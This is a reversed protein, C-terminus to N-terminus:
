QPLRLVRAMIIEDHYCENLYLSARKRGEVQFGCSTYLQFAAPNNELVSLEVRQMGLSQGASLSKNVLKRGLGKGRHGPLVGMSMVGVHRTYLFDSQTIECWGVVRGNDVAVFMPAGAALQREVFHFVAQRSLNEPAIAFRDESAIATIVENFQTLHNVAIPVVEM